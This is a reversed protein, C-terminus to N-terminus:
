DVLVDLLRALQDAFKEDGSVALNRGALESKILPEVDDIDLDVVVSDENEVVALLYDGEGVVRVVADSVDRGQAKDGESEQLGPSEVDLLLGGERGYEDRSGRLHHVENLGESVVASLCDDSM